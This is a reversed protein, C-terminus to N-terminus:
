NLNYKLEYFHTFSRHLNPIRGESDLKDFEESIEFLFKNDVRKLNFDGKKAIGKSSDFNAILSPTTKILNGSYDWHSHNFVKSIYKWSKVLITPGILFPLQDESNLAQNHYLLSLADIRGLIDNDKISTSLIQETALNSKYLDILDILAIKRGSILNELQSAAKELLSCLKHYINKNQIFKSDM